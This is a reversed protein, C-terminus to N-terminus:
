KMMPHGQFGGDHECTWKGENTKLLRYESHKTSTPEIKIIYGKKVENNLKKTKFLDLFLAKKKITGCRVEAQLNNPLTITFHGM